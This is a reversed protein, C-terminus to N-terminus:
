FSVIINNQKRSSRFAHEAEAPDDIEWHVLEVLLGTPDLEGVIGERHRLAAQFRQFGLIWHRYLGILVIDHAIPDLEGGARDAVM